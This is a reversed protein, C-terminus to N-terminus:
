VRRVWLQLGLSHTTGVGEVVHMRDTNGSFVTRSPMRGEQVAVVHFEAASFQVELEAMRGTCKLGVSRKATSQRPDASTINATALVITSVGRKAPPQQM